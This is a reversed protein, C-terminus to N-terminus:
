VCSAAKPVAFETSLIYKHFLGSQECFLRYLSSM